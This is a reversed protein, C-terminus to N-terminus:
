CIVCGNGEATEGPQCHEPHSVNEGSIYTGSTKSVEDKSDWGSDIAGCLLKMLYLDPTMVSSGGSRQHWQEAEREYNSTADVFRGIEPHNDLNDLFETARPDDGVQAFQMAVENGSFGMAALRDRCDQIIVFLTDKPEGQPEGDTITIVLLPKLKTRDQPRKLTQLYPDLVKSKLSTGIPTLGCPKAEMLLRMVDSESVIHDRDKKGNMFRVSIGDDDFLTAVSATKQVIKTLDVEWNAGQMSYSDDAYIVVDYLSLTCLDFAVELPLRWEAAVHEIDVRRAVCAALDDLRSGPYIQQLKREQVVHGLKVRIAAQFAAKGQPGSPSGDPSDTPSGPSQTQFGAAASGTPTNPSSQYAAMATFKSGIGM